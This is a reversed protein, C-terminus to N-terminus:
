MVLDFYSDVTEYSDPDEPPTVKYQDGYEITLVDTSKMVYNQMTMEMTLTYEVIRNKNDLKVVCDYQTVNPFNISFELTSTGDANKTHKLSDEVLFNDVNSWYDKAIGVSEGMSETFSELDIETKRKGAPGDVYMTGNYYITSMGGDVLYYNAGDMYTVSVDDEEFKEGNFETIVVSTEKYTHTHMYNFAYDFYDRPTELNTYDDDGRKDETGDLDCSALTSIMCALALIIVIIRSLKM